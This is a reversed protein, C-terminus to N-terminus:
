GHYGELFQIVESWHKAPFFGTPMCYHWFVPETKSILNINSTLRGLVHSTSSEVNMENDSNRNWPNDYEDLDIHVMVKYYKSECFANDIMRALSDIPGEQWLFNSHEQKESLEFFTSKRSFEDERVNPSISHIESIESVQDTAFIVHVKSKSASMFSLFNGQHLIGKERLLKVCEFSDSFILNEGTSSSKFTRRSLDLDGYLSGRDTHQDIHIILIDEDPKCQEFYCDLFFSDEFSIAYKEGRIVNACIDKIQEGKIEEQLVPDIYFWPNDPQIFRVHGEDLSDLMWHPFHHCYYDAVTEVGLKETNVSGQPFLIPEALISPNTSKGKALVSDQLLGM